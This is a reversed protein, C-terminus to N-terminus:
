KYRWILHYGSDSLVVPSMGGVPCERTGEEFPRQMKGAAFTGLDGGQKFSSCDSRERAHRAFM